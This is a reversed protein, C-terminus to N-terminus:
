PPPSTEPVFSPRYGGEQGLMERNVVVVGRESIHFRQRDVQSNEGIVTGEPLVCENDLIVGKLRSGAGIECGPLALVGQLDCGEGVKVNSYIVCKDLDSQHIVCGGSVMVDEVRCRKGAGIFQASPLQPQYTTIPWTPDYIDIPPEASVIELNAEYYADVTGVDRWYNANGGNPNRFRYAQLHDGNALAYPILDKGFDHSSTTDEADRQLQERLYKLSFVYIGMSALATGPDDPVPKPSAPKEEFDVIRGSGDVQMVGFEVADALPVPNCAITFDAGAGVHAALMEGYDMTYIHDGALILVYEPHYAEIIDLTQFVADATGQYWTEDDLWQQAPVVDIFEGQEASLRNWGRLLHQILSHSKYQTLVCIRRIGSNLCNSLTFDVIRFKGGFPVAPKTRWDTLVGLRRGRGGALVLALTNLTLRSVFRKATGPM